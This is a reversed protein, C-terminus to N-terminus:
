YHRSLQTDGSHSNFSFSNFIHIYNKPHSKLQYAMSFQFFFLSIHKLACSLPKNVLLALPIEVRGKGLWQLDQKYKWWWM